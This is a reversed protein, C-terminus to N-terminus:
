RLCGQEERDVGPIRLGDETQEVALAQRLLKADAGIRSV